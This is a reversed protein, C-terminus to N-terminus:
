FQRRLRVDLGFTGDQARSAVFRIRDSARYEILIVQDQNSAVNTSYTISLDRTVRRGVTIRATPDTGTGTLLPDISFRNLGFLRGTVNSEISRSLQQTALQALANASTQAIAQPSSNFGGSNDPLQGSVILNVVDNQPLSPESRPTVKIQDVPGTFPLIVRYGAIEAEAEINIRPLKKSIGSFEVVGSTIRYREKLVDDIIGRTITIRGGVAVDDVPGTLRLAASAVMDLTKTHVILSDDAAVRLDFQTPPLLSSDDTAGGAATSFESVIREIFEFLNAEALYEARRVNVVGSLIQLQRSGQLTLDGDLTTRTDRPYDVRVGDTRFQFRWRDPRLGVFAAGGTMELKGGGVDATLKEIQAQDATFRLRGNANALALPVDPSRLSGNELTATGTFRPQRFTGRVAAEISVQGDAFLDPVFSQLIKPNVNGSLSFDNGGEQSLAISGNVALNTNPGSLRVSGVDLLRNSIKITVPPQARLQYDSVDFALQDLSAELQVPNDKGALTGSLRLQGSAVGGAAIRGAGALLDFVPALSTEKLEVQANIPFDPNGLDLEGTGNYNQGLLEAALALQARSNSGTATLNVKGLAENRYKLDASTIRATLQDFIRGREAELQFEAGSAALEMNVHGTVPSEVATESLAAVIEGVDIGEGKLNLNYDRIPPLSQQGATTVATTTQTSGGIRAGASGTILGSGSRLRLNSIEIREGDLAVKGTLEEFARDNFKAQTVNFQATGRIAGPLGELEANGVVLGAFPRAVFQRVIVDLPYQKLEAKVSAGNEVNFPYSVTFGAHGGGNHTLTGDEVRLTQSHYAIDAALAGLFEDNVNLGALTLHGAVEPDDLAGTVKGNFTLKDTLTVQDNFKDFAPDTFGTARAVDLALTKLESSDPANLSVDLAGTRDWGIDGNVALTTAGTQVVTNELRLRRESAVLNLTGTVPFGESFTDAAEQKLTAGNFQLNVTGVSSKYDSGQWSLNVRGGAAGRLPLRERVAVAAAQDLNLQNLDAVVTSAGRGDLRVKASGEATGGFVAGNFKPVNIEDRTAILEGSLSGVPVDATVLTPIAFRGKLSFSRVDDMRGKVLVDRFNIRAARVDGSSLEGLDFKGVWSLDAGNGAIRGNAVFRNVRYGAAMLQRIMLEHRAQYEAQEGTVSANLNLGAIRVGEALLENSTIRGTAKYTVGQGEVKGDFHTTGSLKTQPAFLRAVERTRIDAVAAFQYAFARWDKLEGHLEATVLPSNLKLSEVLAGQENARANLQIAIDVSERGDFIFDSKETAAIVRTYGGQDPSLTLNLNRATGALKHQQDLYSFEANRLEITAASTKFEVKQERDAAPLKLGALNSRGQEDVKYTARLGDITLRQLDVEGKRGWGLFGALQKLTVQVSLKDLTAVPENSEPAYLKLNGIEVAQERLTTHLSGVEARVGYEALATKLQGTLWRDFSGSKVFWLVFLSAAGLLLFMGLAARKLNRRSFFRRM